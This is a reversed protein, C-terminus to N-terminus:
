KKQQRMEEFIKIYRKFDTTDKIPCDLRIIAKEPKDKEYLVLFQDGRKLNTTSVFDNNSVQKNLGEYFDCISYKKKDITIFFVVGDPIHSAGNIPQYSYTGIAYVGQMAFYERYKKEKGIKIQSQAIMAVIAIVFIIGLITNRHKM